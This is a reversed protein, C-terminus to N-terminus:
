ILLLVGLFIFITFLLRGFRQIPILQNLKGGILTAILVVPLALLYPIGVVTAIVLRWAAKFDISQRSFIASRLSM